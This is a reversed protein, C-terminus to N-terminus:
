RGQNNLEENLLSNEERRIREGVGNDEKRYVGNFNWLYKLAGGFGLEKILRGESSWGEGTNKESDKSYKHARHCWVSHLHCQYM